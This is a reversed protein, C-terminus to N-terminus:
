GQAEEGKQVDETESSEEEVTIEEPEPAPLEADEENDIGESPFYINSADDEATMKQRRELRALYYQTDRAWDDSIQSGMLEVLEPNDYFADMLNAMGHFKLEDGEPTPLYFWAGSQRVLKRNIAAKLVNPIVDIGKGYTIVYNSSLHPMGIKNKTTKIRILSGVPTEQTEFTYPNTIEKMVKTSETVQFRIAAYYALADTSPSVYQPIKAMGIAPANIDKYLQNIFVLAPGDKAMDATVNRMFEAMIKGKVGIQKTEYLGNTVELKPRMAAISDVVIMDYNGSKVAEHIQATGEEMTPPTILTFAPENTDVGLSHLYPVQNAIAHEFDAYLVRFDPNTMQNFAITELILTTKSASKLGAVESIAAKPFM